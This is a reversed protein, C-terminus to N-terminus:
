TAFYEMHERLFELLQEYYDKITPDVDVKGAKVKLLQEFTVHNHHWSRGDDLYNNFIPILKDLAYVFKSEPSLKAEYEEILKHMIVLEPWDIKLQRVAAQEREAKSALLEQSGYVPTDGSHVELIDHV